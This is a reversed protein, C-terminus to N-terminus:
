LLFKTHRDAACKFDNVDYISTKVMPVTSCNQLSLFLISSIDIVREGQHKLLSLTTKFAKHGDLFQKSVFDLDLDM